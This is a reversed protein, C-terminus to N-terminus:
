GKADDAAAEAGAQQAGQREQELLPRIAPTVAAIRRCEEAFTSLADEDSPATSGEAGGTPKGSAAASLPSGPEPEQAM